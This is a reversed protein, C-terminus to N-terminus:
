LFIQTKKTLYIIIKAILSYIYAVFAKLNKNLAMEFGKNKNM